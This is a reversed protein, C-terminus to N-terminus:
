STIRKCLAHVFAVVDHHDDVICKQTGDDGDNTFWHGIIKPLNGHMHFIMKATGNDGFIEDTKSDWGVNGQEKLVDFVMNRLFFNVTGAPALSFSEFKVTQSVIGFSDAAYVMLKIPKQQPDLTFGSATWKWEDKFRVEILGREPEM